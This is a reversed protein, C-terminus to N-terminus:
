TQVGSKSYDFPTFGIKCAVRTSRFHFDLNEPDIFLTDAVISNRDKGLKQWEAFSRKQQSPINEKFAAPSLRVVAWGDSNIVQFGPDPTRTDWYCNSYFDIDARLLNDKGMSQFLVGENFFVINNTFSFSKYEEM